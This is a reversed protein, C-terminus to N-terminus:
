SRAGKTVDSEEEAQKARAAVELRRGRVVRGDADFCAGDRYCTICLCRPGQEFNWVATAAYSTSNCGSCPRQDTDIHM